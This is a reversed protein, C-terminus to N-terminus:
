ASTSGGLADYPTNTDLETQSPGTAGGAAGAENVIKQVAVRGPDNKGGIDNNFSANPESGTIEGGEQLNDGKPQSAPAAKSRVSAANFPGSNLSPVGAGGFGEARDHARIGDARDARSHAPNLKTANSTDTTNTTTSSSPQDLVGRSSSNAAFSGGDRISEGALSDSTVAGPNEHKPEQQSRPDTTVKTGSM